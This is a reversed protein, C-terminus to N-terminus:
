EVQVIQFHEQFERWLLHILLPRLEAALEATLREMVAFHRYGAIQQPM